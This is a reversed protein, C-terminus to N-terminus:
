SPSEPEPTESRYRVDLEDNELEALAIEPPKPKKEFEISILEQDPNRETEEDFPEAAGGLPTEPPQVSNLRETFANKLEENVQRSRKALIIAAEYLNGAKEILLELDVPTVAM